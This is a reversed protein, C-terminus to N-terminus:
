SGLVHGAGMGNEIVPPNSQCLKIMSISLRSFGEGSVVLFLFPKWPDMIVPMDGISSSSRKRNLNARHWGEGGGLWGIHDPDQPHNPPPSPQISRDPIHELM